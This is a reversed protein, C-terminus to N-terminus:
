SLTDSNLPRDILSGKGVKYQFFCAFSLEVAYIYSNIAETITTNLYGVIRSDNQRRIQHKITMLAASYGIAAPLLIKVLELLWSSVNGWWSVQTEALLVL